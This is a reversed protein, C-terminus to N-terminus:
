KWRPSASFKNFYFYLNWMLNHLQERWLSLVKLCNFYKVLVVTLEIFHLNLIKNNIATVNIDPFSIILLSFSPFVPPYCSPFSCPFVQWCSSLITDLKWSWLIYTDEQKVRLLTLYTVNRIYISCWNLTSILDLNNIHLILRGTFYKM